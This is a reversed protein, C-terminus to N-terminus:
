CITYNGKKGEEENNGKMEEKQKTCKNNLGKM